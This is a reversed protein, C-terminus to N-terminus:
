ATNCNNSVASDCDREICDSFSHLQVSHILRTCIKSTCDDNNIIDCQADICSVLFPM